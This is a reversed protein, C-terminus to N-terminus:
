DLITVSGTAFDVEVSIGNSYVARQKRPSGAVFEHRLLEAHVVRRQFACLRQVREIEEAGADISLYGTGGNLYAHLLGSDGQPIGWGGTTLSWPLILCDHYVLNFLPIPIGQAPGADFTGALAYPGHHVLELFPVAWDIPEESSVVLGTTGLHAFSQGRFEMCERRTMRHEPHFCEDLEVVAFVDLYAGDLHVGGESLAAFNRRVYAPAQTACLFAQAGGYWVAEDPVGGCEDQVAQGPDYTAADKYYDRYQDHTIILYGLAHCTDVLQRMGEWGGAPPCPPLVDPHLNDYGRTGWGDLHVYARDVGNQKLKELQSARETFSVLAENAAPNAPDYYTSDPQIHYSISTHV